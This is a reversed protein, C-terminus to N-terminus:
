DNDTLEAASELLLCEPVPRLVARYPRKTRYIVSLHRDGTVCSRRRISPGELTAVHTSHHGPPGMRLCRRDVLDLDTDEIIVPVSVTIRDQGEPPSGNAAVYCAFHM